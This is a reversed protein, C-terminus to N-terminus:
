RAAQEVAAQEVAAMQAAYGLLGPGWGGLIYTRHYHEPVLTDHYGAVQVLFVRVDPNVEARYRAVLRPVDIYQERGKWAYTRYKAPSTGYLGGHGAQMDSLVFVHDWRQRERIARDWFLWVGNETGLGIGQALRELQDLQDFVSSRKRVAMSELRDGFIGVHGDHSRMAALVGTLNAITSVKMTGMASTTTGQASGSNDCLAMTRGGLWPLNELSVMLSEEVADRVAAPADTGLAQYASYYRFPLQKGTRAGAVLKGTFRAAPIGAQVLNRLNRLLAMHGMVPLAADWAQPTSGRASVISEWTRDTTTLTGNALRDIAAGRPHVLNMVDVTKEAKSALRYKALAYDDFRQLADRWAKKLANPIPKGYRHLQYSLGVAPEDARMIIAKAWQRVLGTGRVAPHHAARVLIVQPTTRVLAEDRLRAAERLTGEPDHALAEDICREILESPTQSRWERPDTAGLTDRLHEVDADTLAFAPARRRPRADAGDRHYYMPEGFFCSAAAMRLRLLPDTIAYSPGGMWNLHAKGTSSGNRRKSRQFLAM